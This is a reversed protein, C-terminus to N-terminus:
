SIVLVHAVFQSVVMATGCVSTPTLRSAIRRGVMSMARLAVLVPTLATWGNVGRSQLAITRQTWWGVDMKEVCKMGLGGRSMSCCKTHTCDEGPASCPDAVCGNGDWMCKDAHGM